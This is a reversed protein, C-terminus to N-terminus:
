EFEGGSVTVVAAGSTTTSSAGASASSSAPANTVISDLGSNWVAYYVPTSGSPSGGKLTLATEFMQQSCMCNDNPYGACSASCKSIDVKYILPPMEDGCYCENGGTMAMVAKGLPVCAKTSCAGSSQYTYTNNYTLGQDSSYCGQLSPSQAQSPSAMLLAVFTTALSAALSTSPFMM